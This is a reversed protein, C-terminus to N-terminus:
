LQKLMWLDCGFHGSNGLPGTLRTFGMKEYLGVATNLEPMTELYMSTYGLVKAAEFCKEILAKGAGIGRAEPALYLKVLECCGQPLAETPYVGAGGAINGGYLATFYISAPKRFLSYLDDTTPDYYVTGPKNAKFEALTARIVGALQKNDEEQIERILVANDM